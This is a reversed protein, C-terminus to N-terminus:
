VRANIHDFKFDQGVGGGWVLVDLEDSIKGGPHFRQESVKGQLILYLKNELIHILVIFSCLCM